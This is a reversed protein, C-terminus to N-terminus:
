SLIRHIQKPWLYFPTICNLSVCYKIYILSRSFCCIFAKLVKNIVLYYYIHSWLQKYCKTRLCIRGLKLDVFLPRWILRVFCWSYCFPPGVTCVYYSMLLLINLIQNTFLLSRIFYFSVAYPISSIYLYAKITNFELENVFLKM